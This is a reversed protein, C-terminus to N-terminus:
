VSEAPRHQVEEGKVKGASVPPEQEVEVPQASELSSEPALPLGPEAGVSELPPRLGQVLVALQAVRWGIKRNKWVVMVGQKNGPPEGFGGEVKDVVVVQKEGAQKGEMRLQSLGGREWREPEEARVQDKRQVLPRFHGM